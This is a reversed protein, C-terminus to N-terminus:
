LHNQRQKKLEEADVVSAQKRPKFSKTLADSEQSRKKPVSEPAAATELPFTKLEPQEFLAELMKLDRDM